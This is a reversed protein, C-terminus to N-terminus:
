KEGVIVKVWLPKQKPKKEEKLKWEKGHEERKKKMGDRWWKSQAAENKIQLCLLFNLCINREHLEGDEEANIYKENKRKKTSSKQGLAYNYNNNWWKETKKERLMERKKKEKVKEKTENWSKM